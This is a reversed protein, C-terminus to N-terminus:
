VRDGNRVSRAGKDIIKDGPNIGDVVMTKGEYSAGSQISKKLAVQRDREDKGLVYVYDKGKGDQMIISSPLVIAGAKTMDNIKMSVLSNPRIMDIDQDIAVRIEFSRNTPNIFSGIRTIQSELT